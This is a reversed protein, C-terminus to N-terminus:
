PRASGVIEVHTIRVPNLPRDNPGRPMRAIKKVLEVSKDDCQGFITYGTGKPILRFGRRCGGPDFCPDLGPQPGETIFFQSGNTNPGANAMALRGPRDFLLDPLLEDDFTYGPGGMGSGVPDGGQIMFEPIVRHFIVGDYFPHNHEVKGTRPNTWDKKGTALGVFNAVAKPAKDPFLECRLDGATTHLVAVLRGGAASGAWAAAAGVILLVAALAVGAGACRLFVPEPHVTFLCRCGQHTENM